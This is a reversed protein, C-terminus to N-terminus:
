KALKEEIEKSYDDKKFHRFAEICKQCHLLFNNNIEGEYDKLSLFASNLCNDIMEEDNIKEFLHSLNCFIVAMESDNGKYLSLINLAKRFYRLAEDYNESEYLALAYNNSFGAFRYDNQPITNIYAEFARVFLPLSDATRHFFLAFFRPFRHIHKGAVPFQQFQIVQM